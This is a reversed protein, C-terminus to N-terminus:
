DETDLAPNQLLLFVCECVNVRKREVNRNTAHFYSMSWNSVNSRREAPMTGKEQLPKQEIKRYFSANKKCVLTYTDTLTHTDIRTRISLWRLSIIIEAKVGEPVNEAM